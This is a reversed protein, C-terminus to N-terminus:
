IYIYMYQYIDKYDPPKLKSLLNKHNLLITQWYDQNYM